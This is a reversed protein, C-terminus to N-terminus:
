LPIGLIVSSAKFLATVPKGVALELLDCSENTVSATIAGSGLLDLIVESNVAGTQIRSITGTLRNSASFHTADDESVIFVSSAKILAFAESGVKLNLEYASESTVMAIITHGGVIELEIEDNVTGERIATVKGLFQNRASTKMGVRAILLLDDAIGNVQTNLQQIFRKHERSIL